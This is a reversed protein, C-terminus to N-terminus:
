GKFICFRFNKSLKNFQSTCLNYQSLGPNQVRVLHAPNCNRLAEVLRNGRAFDLSSDDDASIVVVDPLDPFSLFGGIDAV